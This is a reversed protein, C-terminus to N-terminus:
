YLKTECQACREREVPRKCSVFILINEQISPNQFHNKFVSWSASLKTKDQSQLHKTVVSNQFLSM